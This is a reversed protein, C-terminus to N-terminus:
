VYLRQYFVALVSLFDAWWMLQMMITMHKLVRNMLLM